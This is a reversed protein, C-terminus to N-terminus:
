NIGSASSRSTLNNSGLIVTFTREVVWRPRTGGRLIDLARVLSGVLTVQNDLLKCARLTNSIASKERILPGNLNLTAARKARNECDDICDRRYRAFLDSFRNTLTM